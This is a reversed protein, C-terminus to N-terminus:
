QDFETPLLENLLRELDALKQTGPRRDGSSSFRSGDAYMFVLSWHEGDLMQMMPIEPLNIRRFNYSPHLQYFKQEAFLKRVRKLGDKSVKQPAENWGTKGIDYDGEGVEISMPMKPNHAMGQISLHVYVLDAQPETQMEAKRNAEIRDSEEKFCKYRLQEYEVSRTTRRRQVTDKVVIKIAPLLFENEEYRTRMSDALLQMQQPTLKELEYVYDACARDNTMMLPLPKRQSPNDLLKKVQKLQETNYDTQAQALSTMTLLAIALSLIRIM